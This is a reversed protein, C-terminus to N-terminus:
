WRQVLSIIDDRYFDPSKSAFIETLAKKIDDEKVLSKETLQSALSRSLHYNTHVLYPSYSLHCLTRRKVDLLKKSTSMTIHPQTNDHLFYERDQKGKLSQAVRNLQRCYVDATVTTGVQLLEWYIVGKIGKWISLMVKIPRLKSKPKPLGKEGPRLWQSRHLHNVYTGLKGNGTVINAM